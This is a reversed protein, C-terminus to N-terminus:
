HPALRQRAAAAWRGRPDLQLYRRWHAKGTRPLSLKEYLLALSVHVDPHLPNCELAARYHRLAQENRGREELLAGLNLNAEVHGPELEVARLFLERARDPRGRGFYVSGLNCYADAYGPDADIAARYAEIAADVRTGDVDLECGREFWEVAISRAEPSGPEFGRREFPAVGAANASLDLVLQGEPEMLVGQHRVVVCGTRAGPRLASLPDCEPMRERVLEIGMRIRRLPVGEDLLGVISKVSVLDSFDFAPERDIELTPHLLATREWYRLRRRSVGCIRAVDGLTYATM